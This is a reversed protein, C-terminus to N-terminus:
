GVRKFPWQAYLFSDTPSIAQVERLSGVPWEISELIKSIKTVSTITPGETISYTGDWPEFSRPFTLLERQTSKIRINAKINKSSFVYKISSAFEDASGTKGKIEFIRNFEVPTRDRRSVEEPKDVIQRAFVEVKPAEHHEPQPVYRAGMTMGFYRFITLQSKELQHKRKQFKTQKNLHHKIKSWESYLSGLLMRRNKANLYPWSDSEKVIENFFKDFSDWEDPHSRVVSFYENVRARVETPLNYYESWRENEFMGSTGEKNDFAVLPDSIHTIEHAVSERLNKLTTKGFLRIQEIADRYKVESSVNIFIYPKKLEKSGSLFDSLRAGTFPSVAGAGAEFLKRETREYGKPSRKAKKPHIWIKTDVTYEKGKTKIKIPISIGTNVSFKNYHTDQLDRGTLYPFNVSLLAQRMSMSNVAGVTLSDRIRILNEHGIRSSSRTMGGECILRDISDLIHQRINTIYEIISEVVFEVQQWDIQIANPNKIM